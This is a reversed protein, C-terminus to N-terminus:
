NYLRWYDNKVLWMPNRAIDRLPEWREDRAMDITCGDESLPVLLAEDRGGDDEDLNRGTVSRLPHGVRARARSISRIGEVLKESMRLVPLEISLSELRPVPVQCSKSDSARPALTSEVFPMTSDLRLDSRRLVLTSVSPVFPLLEHFHAFHETVVACPGSSSVRLSTVGTLDVQGCIIRQVRDFDVMKDSVVNFWVGSRPGSAIIDLSKIDGTGSFTRSRNGDFPVIDVLKDLHTLGALARLATIPSRPERGERRLKSAKIKIQESSPQIGALLVLAATMSVGQIWVAHLAPM